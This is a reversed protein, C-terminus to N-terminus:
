NTAEENIESAVNWELWQYHRRRSRLRLVRWWFVFSGGFLLALPILGFLLSLHVVAYLSAAEGVPFSLLIVIGLVIKVLLIIAIVGVAARINEGEKM